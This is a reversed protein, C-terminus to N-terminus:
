FRPTGDRSEGDLNISEQKRQEYLQEPVEEMLNWYMDGSQQGFFYVAKLRRVGEMNIQYTSQSEKFAVLSESEARLFNFSTKRCLHQYARNIENYRAYTLDNTLFRVETLIEEGNM